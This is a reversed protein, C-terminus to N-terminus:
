HNNQKRRLHDLARIAQKHIRADTIHAVTQKWDELKSGLASLATIVSSTDISCLNAFALACERRIQISEYAPEPANDVLSFVIPFASSKIMAEAYSRIETFKSFAIIAHQRVCEFDDDLLKALCSVVNAKCQNLQLYHPDHEALDCLMKAGEFRAEYFVEQCMNFIPLIGHLFQEESIGSSSLPAFSIDNGAKEDTVHTMMNKFERYFMFFPKSDGKVRNAEVLIDKSPAYEAYLHLYIECFSSGRIYKGKV